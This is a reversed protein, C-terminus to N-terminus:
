VVSKRDRSGIVVPPADVVEEEKFFEPLSPPTINPQTDTGVLELKMQGPLVLPNAEKPRKTKKATDNPGRNTM